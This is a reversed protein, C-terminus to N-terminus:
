KNTILKKLDENEKKLEIVHLWLEEIQRLLTADMEVMDVGNDNVEQASPVNPLHKNEKIFQEVDETTNLDYDEEFVFDAWDTSGYTAVKVKETLIGEKVFLRYGAPTDWNNGAGVLLEGSVHVQQDGVGPILMLRDYETHDVIRHRITNGVKFQIQSDWTDNDTATLSIIAEENGTADVDLSGNITLDDNDFDGYILPNSTNSNDIYLKSGGTEYYGARHGLFVNNSGSVNSYGALAGVYTNKNGLSSYGAFTGLGVNNFGGENSRIANVGLGVNSYGNTNQRGAHGGIFTNNNATTNAGAYHGIYTANVNGGTGSTNLDSYTTQAYTLSASLFLAIFFSLSKTVILNQNTLNMKNFKYFNIFIKTTGSLRVVLAKGHSKGGSLSAANKNNSRM